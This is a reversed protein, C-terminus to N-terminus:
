YLIIAKGKETLTVIEDKLNLLNQGKLYSLLAMFQSNDLDKSNEDRIKMNKNFIQSLESIKLLGKHKNLIGLIMGRGDKFNLPRTNLLYIKGKNEITADVLYILKILFQVERDEEYKKSDLNVRKDLFWFTKGTSSNSVKPLLELIKEEINKKFISIETEDLVVDEGRLLNEKKETLSDLIEVLRLYEKHNSKQALSFGKNAALSSLHLTSM